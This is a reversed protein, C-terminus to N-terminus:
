YFFYTINKKGIEQYNNTNNFSETTAFHVILGNIYNLRGTKQNFKGLDFSYDEFRLFSVSSNM